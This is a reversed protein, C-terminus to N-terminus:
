EVEIPDHVRRFARQAIDDLKAAAGGIEVNRHQDGALGAGALFQQRAGNVIPGATGALREHDLIAARQGVFQQFAFQETALLAREGAGILISDPQELDSVAASDEKIFDTLGRRRELHLQQAHQLFAFDPREARLPHALDIHAHDRGGIAIQFGLHACAPEAAIEIIPQRRKRQMHRRQALPRHINRQDRAAHEVFDALSIAPRHM